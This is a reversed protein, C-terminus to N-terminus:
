WFLGAVQVDLALRRCLQSTRVTLKPIQEAGAKWM